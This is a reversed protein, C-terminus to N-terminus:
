YLRILQGKLYYSFKSPKGFFKEVAKVMDKISLVVESGLQFVDSQGGKKLYEFAYYNAYAVDLVHIYSRICTGDHTDHDTGYIKFPTGNQAARMLLPFVHTEPDHEEGLGEEPTAGVANVFRLIVYELGYAKHCDELILETFLKTRAYPSLPNKPHDETIPLFQADGYVSRSSAFIIRNVNHSRMVTLLHITKAINNEYFELAKAFSEPVIAYAACHFVCEIKNKTFIESLIKEDAYDAEIYHAWPHRKKVNHDLVIVEYGKKALVWAIHSGVYGRVM